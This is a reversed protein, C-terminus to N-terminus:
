SHKEKTVFDFGGGTIYHVVIIGTGFFFLFVKLSLEYEFIISIVILLMGYLSHHLKYGKIVLSEKRTIMPMITEYIFAFICGFIIGLFVWFYISM